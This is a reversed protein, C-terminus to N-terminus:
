RGPVFFVFRKDLYYKTVYGIGLGLVAGVYRMRDTGFMRDFGIEVSWFIATTVVGMLSYLFFTRGDHAVDNARFMFIYRKDLVYKIVLGIGTGVLMSLTIAFPGTYMRVVADQSAINAATAILALLIYIVPLKVLNDTYQVRCIKHGSNYSLCSSSCASM